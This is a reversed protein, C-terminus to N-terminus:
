FHNLSYKGFCHHYKMYSDVMAIQMLTVSTCKNLERSTRLAKNCQAIPLKSQLRLLLGCYRNHSALHVDDSTGAYRM